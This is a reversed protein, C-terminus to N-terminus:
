QKRGVTTRKASLVTKVFGQRSGGTKIKRKASLQFSIASLERGKVSLVTKVEEQKSGVAKQEREPASLQFSIASRDRGKVSLGTKM